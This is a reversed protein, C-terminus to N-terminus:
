ALLRRPLTTSWDCVVVEVDNVTPAVAMASEEEEEEEESGGGLDVEWGGLGAVVGRPLM